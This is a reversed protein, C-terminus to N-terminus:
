IPYRLLVYHLRDPPTFFPLATHSWPTHSKSVCMQATHSRATRAEAACSLVAGSRLPTGLVGTPALACFINELAKSSWTNGITVVKCACHAEEGGWWTTNLARVATVLLDVAAQPRM